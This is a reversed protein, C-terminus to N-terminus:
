PTPAPPMPEPSRAPEKLQILSVDLSRPLPPPPVRARWSLVAALLLVHVAVTAVLGIGNFRRRWPPSVGPQAPALSLASSPSTM